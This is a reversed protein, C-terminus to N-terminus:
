WLSNFEGSQRVELTAAVGPSSSIAELDRLRARRFETSRMSAGVSLKFRDRAKALSNSRGVPLPSCFQTVDGEHGDAPAAGCPQRNQWSSSTGRWGPPDTAVQSPLGTQWPAPRPTPMTDLAEEIDSQTPSANPMTGPVPHLSPRSLVNACSATPSAQLPSSGDCGTWALRRRVGGADPSGMGTTAQPQALSVGCRGTGSDRQFVWASSSPMSRDSQPVAAQWHPSADTAASDLTALLRRRVPAATMGPSRSHLENEATMSANAACHSACAAGGGHMNFPPLPPVEAQWRCRSPTVLSPSNCLSSGAGSSSAAPTSAQGGSCDSWAKGLIPMSCLSGLSRSSSGSSRFVFGRPSMALSAASSARGLTSAATVAATDGICSHVRVRGHSGVDHKGASSWDRGHQFAASSWDGGTFQLPALDSPPSGTAPTARRGTMGPSGLGSNCVLRTVSPLSKLSSPSAFMDLAVTAAATPMNGSDMARGLSAVESWQWCSAM